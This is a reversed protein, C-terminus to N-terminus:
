CQNVSAKPDITTSAMLPQGVWGGTVGAVWIRWKVAVGLGTAGPPTVRREQCAVSAPIKAPVGDHLRPLWV